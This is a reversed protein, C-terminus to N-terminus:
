IKLSKKLDSGTAIELLSIQINRFLELLVFHNGERLGMGEFGELRLEAKITMQGSSGKGLLIDSRESSEWCVWRIHIRSQHDTLQGIWGAGGSEQKSPKNALEDLKDLSVETHGPRLARLAARSPPPPISTNALKSLLNFLDPLLGLTKQFKDSKAYAHLIGGGANLHGSLAFTTWLLNEHIYKFNLFHHLLLFTTLTNIIKLLYLLAQIDLDNLPSLTLGSLNLM